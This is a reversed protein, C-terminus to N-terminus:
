IHTETAPLEFCLREPIEADYPDLTPYAGSKSLITSRLRDLPDAFSPYALQGARHYHAVQGAATCDCGCGAGAARM